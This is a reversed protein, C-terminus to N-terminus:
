QRLLILPLFSIFKKAFIPYKKFIFYFSVLLIALVVMLIIHLPCYLGPGESLVEENATMWDYFTM